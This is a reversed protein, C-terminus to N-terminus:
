EVRVTVDSTLTVDPLLLGVIPVETPSLYRVRVALRDGRRREPGLEVALREARLGSASRAARITADPEPNVAASRAAERSVHALLLRDRAVSGIQVILLAVAVLAPLVLM